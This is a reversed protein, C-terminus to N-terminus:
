LRGQALSPEVASFGCPPRHPVETRNRALGGETQRRHASTCAGDGRLREGKHGFVLAHTPEAGYGSVLFRFPCRTRTSQLPVLAPENGTSPPEIGGGAVMQKSASGLPLPTSRLTPATSEPPKPQKLASSDRVVTRTLPHIASSFLGIREHGLRASAVPRSGPLQPNSDRRACWRRLDRAPKPDTGEHIPDRRRQRPPTSYALSPCQTHPGETPTLIGAGEGLGTAMARRKRPAGASNRGKAAPAPRENGIRTGAPACLATACNTLTGAKSAPPRHNSDM